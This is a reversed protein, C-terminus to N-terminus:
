HLFEEPKIDVHILPPESQNMQLLKADMMTVSELFSAVFLEPAESAARFRLLRAKRVADSLGAQKVGCAIRSIAERAVAPEDIDQYARLLAHVGDNLLCVDDKVQEYAAEAASFRTGFFGDLWGTTAEPMAAIHAHLQGTLGGLEIVVDRTASIAQARREIPDALKRALALADLAGAVKGRQTDATLRAIDRVGAEIAELKSAIVAMNVMLVVNSLINLYDPPVRILDVNEVFRNGDRLYTKWSGDAGQKFLHAHEASMVVRFVDGRPLKRMTDVITPFYNALLRLVRQRQISDSTDNGVYVSEGRWHAIERDDAAM